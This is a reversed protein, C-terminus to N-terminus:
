DVEVAPSRDRISDGEVLVAGEERLVNRTPRAGSGSGKGVSDRAGQGLGESRTWMAQRSGVIRAVMDATQTGRKDRSM